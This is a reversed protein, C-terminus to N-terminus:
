LTKEGKETYKESKEKGFYESWLLGYMQYAWMSYYDYSSNDIYWGEGRYDALSLDLFKKM